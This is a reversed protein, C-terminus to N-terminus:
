KIGRTMKVTEWAMNIQKMSETAQRIAEDGLNSANDPHYKIALARYAKKIEEVSVDPSVGLIAYANKEKSSIQCSDHYDENNTKGQKSNRHGEQKKYYNDKRDESKTKNESYFGKNYKEIFISYISKYEDSTIRLQSVIHLIEKEESYKLNNDAYAVALLEMILESKATDNLRSNISRCITNIDNEKDLIYKFQKLANQQEDETQYYRLITTRVRDLECNTLNGDAKMVEALLVLICYKLYLNDNENSDFEDENNKEETDSYSQQDNEDQDNEDQDNEDQLSNEIWDFAKSTIFYIFFMYPIYLLSLLFSIDDLFLFPAISLFFYGALIFFIYLIFRM